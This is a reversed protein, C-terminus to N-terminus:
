IRSWKWSVYQVTLLKAAKQPDSLEDATFTREHAGSYWGNVDEFFVQELLECGEFALNGITNIKAPISISKLASCGRFLDKGIATMGASLTVNKLSSCGIFAGDGISRVNDPIVIETLAKCYAFAKEGIDKISESLTVTTLADCSYFAREGIDNISESFSVATLADCSSFAREGIDNVGNSLTVSTISDFNMFARPYIDYQKGNLSEPLYLKTDEGDYGVLESMGAYDFLLYGNLDVIRSEGSTVASAYKGVMGNDDSEKRIRLSSNNVVEILKYCDAFAKDGIATVTEPITVSVIKERDCFAFPHVRYDEGNYSEPLKLIAVDEACTILYNVEAHTYFWFGDTEVIRSEGTHFYEKYDDLDSQDYFEENDIWEESPVIVELLNNCNAFVMTGIETVSGSISVSVLRTCYQFAGSGIHTVNEGGIVRVLGSYSFASDGIHTVGSGIDASFLSSCSVFAENGITTVSDPIVVRELNECEGFAQNGIATLGSPFFVSRLSKCQYFAKDGIVTVDDPIVVNRISTDNVSVLTYGTENKELIFPSENKAKCSIWFVTGCLLIIGFFFAFIKKM